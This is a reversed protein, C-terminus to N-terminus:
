KKILYIELEQNFAGQVLIQYSIYFQHQYIFDLQHFLIYVSNEDVRIPFTTNYLGTIQKMNYSASSILFEDKESDKFQLRNSNDVSVVITEDAQKFLNTLIGALTISNINTYSEKIYYKKRDIEIYDNEDLVVITCLTTLGTITLKTIPTTPAELCTHIKSYDNENESVITYQLEKSM